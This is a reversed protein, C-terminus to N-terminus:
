APPKTGWLHDVPGIGGGMSLASRIAETVFAKGARVADPLDEGRALYAAISSSLTCGTGHTNPTDIREASLWEMRDGDFFLDDAADSGELHGGKVLVARPGIARIVEAADQMLDRSSVDFGALWLALIVPLIAMVPMLLLSHTLHRHYHLYNLSGRIATVIDIDPANAALIVIATGGPSWRKLGARALFLGTATHTLNDM